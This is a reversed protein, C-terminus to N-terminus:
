PTLLKNWLNELDLKEKNGLLAYSWSNDWCEKSPNEYKYSLLRVDEYSDQIFEEKFPLYWGISRLKNISDTKKLLNIWDILSDQNLQSKVLLFQWSLPVGDNPFVISIRPDIKLFELCQNLPVIAVSSDTNLFWDLTNKDDYIDVQEILKALANNTSIRQAISTVIRPSNPLIIKGQLEKSLLFDWSRKKDIKFKKNNKIIVAYPIVGVPFLRQSEYIEFDDLYSKARKDLKEILTINIRKFDNIKLKNLWGDNILILDSNKYNSINKELNEQYFNIEKQIWGRPFINKILKPFMRKQYGITTRKMTASCGSLLLLLSLGAYNLFRRRSSDKNIM